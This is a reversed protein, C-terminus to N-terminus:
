PMIRVFYPYIKPLFIIFLLSLFFIGILGLVSGYLTLIVAEYGRGSILMEHGPLVSLSSDEDPAGLFISPIFDIFTHTMSMAVIFVVLVIPSVFKLLLLSSSLLFIAVLNIHIGPSLGTLTGALVGILLALLIYLIM